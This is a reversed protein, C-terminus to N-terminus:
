PPPPLIHLQYEMGGVDGYEPTYQFTRFAYAGEEAREESLFGLRIVAESTHPALPLGELGAGEPSIAVATDGVQALIGWGSAGAARWPEFWPGLDVVIRGPFVRSGEAPEFVVAVEPGSVRRLAFQGLSAEGPLARIVTVSRWAINNNHRTNTATLSGEEEPFSMPDGQSVWRALLSYHGPPPLGQWPVAVERVEGPALQLGQVAGLEVWDGQLQRWRLSGGAPAYYVHLAGTSAQPPSVGPGDNRLTVFVHSGVAGSLPSTSQQCTIASPCVKIDPSSWLPTLAHPELGVDELHDQIRVDGGLAQAWPALVWLTFLVAGLRSQGRQASRVHSRHM